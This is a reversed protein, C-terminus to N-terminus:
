HVACRFPTTLMADREVQGLRALAEAVEAEPFLRLALRVFVRYHGQESRELDHYFTGLETGALATAALAFREASRAEIYASVILRDLLRGLHCDPGGPRIGKLLQNVYPDPEDPGLSLGRKVLLRHVQGFHELEERALATLPDVLVSMRSHRALLGLASAAAKRECCAHDILFQDMNALAIEAWGAPTPELNPKLTM